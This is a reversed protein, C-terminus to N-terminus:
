CVALALSLAPFHRIILTLEERGGLEGSKSKDGDLREEREGERRGETGEKRRGKKNAGKTSSAGCSM